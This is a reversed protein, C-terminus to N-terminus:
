EKLKGEKERRNKMNQGGFSIPQYKGGGPHPPTNELIYVEAYSYAPVEKV